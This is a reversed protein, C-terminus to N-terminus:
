SWIILKKQTVDSAINRAVQFSYSWFLLLNGSFDSIEHHISKLIRDSKTVAYYNTILIKNYIHYEVVGNDIYKYIFIKNINQYIATADDNYSVRLNEFDM